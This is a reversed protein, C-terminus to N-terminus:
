ENIYKSKGSSKILGDQLFSPQIKGVHAHRNQTHQTKNTPLKTPRTDIGCM